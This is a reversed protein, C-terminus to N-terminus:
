HGGSTSQEPQMDVTGDDEQLLDEFLFVRKTIRRGGAGVGLFVSQTNIDASAGGKVQGESEYYEVMVVTKAREIRVAIAMEQAVRAQQEASRMRIELRKAEELLESTTGKSAADLSEAGMAIAKAVPGLIPDFRLWDSAVKWVSAM